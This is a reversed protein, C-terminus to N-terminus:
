ETEVDISKQYKKLIDLNDKILNFITDADQSTFHMRSMNSSDELELLTKTLPIDEVELKAEHKLRLKVGEFFHDFHGKLTLYVIDEDNM